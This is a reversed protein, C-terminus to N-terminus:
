SIISIQQWIALCALCLVVRYTPESSKTRNLCRNALSYFTFLSKIHFMNQEIVNQCKEVECTDNCHDDKHNHSAQCYCGSEEVPSFFGVGVLLHPSDRLLVAWIEGEVVLRVGLVDGTFVRLLIENSQLGSPGIFEHNKPSLSCVITDTGRRPFGAERLPVETSATAGCCTSPLFFFLVLLHRRETATSYTTFVFLCCRQVKPHRDGRRQQLYELSYINIDKYRGRALTVKDYQFM